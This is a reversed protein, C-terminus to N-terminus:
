TTSLCGWLMRSNCRLHRTPRRSGRGMRRGSDIENWDSLSVVLNRLRLDRKYGVGEGDSIM